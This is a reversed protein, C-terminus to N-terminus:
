LNDPNENTWINYAIKRITVIEQHIDWLIIPISIFIGFLVIEKIVEKM